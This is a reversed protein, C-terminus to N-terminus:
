VPDPHVSKIVKMKLVTLCWLSFQHDRGYTEIKKTPQLEKQVMRGMMSLRRLGRLRRLGSLRGRSSEQMVDRRLGKSPQLTESPRVMMGAKRRERSMFGGKPKVLPGGMDRALQRGMKHSTEMKVSIGSM